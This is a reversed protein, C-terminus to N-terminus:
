VCPQKPFLSLSFGFILLLTSNFIKHRPHKFRFIHLHHIHLVSQIYILIHPGLSTSAFHSRWSGISPSHYLWFESSSGTVELSLTDTRTSDCPVYGLIIYWLSSHDLGTRSHSGLTRSSDGFCASDRAQPCPWGPGQCSYGSCTTYASQPFGLLNTTISPCASTESKVM